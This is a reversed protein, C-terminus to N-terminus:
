NEIVKDANVMQRLQKKKNDVTNVALIDRFCYDKLFQKIQNSKRSLSPVKEQVEKTLQAKTLSSGHM